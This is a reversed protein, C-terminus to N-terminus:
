VINQRNASLLEHTHANNTPPFEFYNRPLKNNNNLKSSNTLTRKTCIWVNKDFFKESDQRMEHALHEGSAGAGAAIPILPKIKAEQCLNFETITGRSGGIFIGASALQAFRGREDPDLPFKVRATSTPADPDIKHLAKIAEQSALIRSPHTPCGVIGYGQIALMEGILQCIHQHFRV